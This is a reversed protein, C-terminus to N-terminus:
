FFMKMIDDIKMSNATVAGSQWHSREVRHVNGAKVASVAKWMKGELLKLAEANEPSDWAGNSPFIIIHDADIDPISEEALVQHFDTMEKSWKDPNLGLDSFIFGTYRNNIGFLSLTQDDVNLRVVAVTEEGLTKALKDKADAIKQEYDSLVGESQEKMNLVDAVTQLIAKSDQLISEPLRYTPAVKSFMDYKTKDAWGDLIILDPEYALLAEINGTIDFTPLDLKLYEQTGWLPHYWQVVPTVGLATLYDEMYIAAVRKPHAPVTVEGFEDQLVRTEAEQEAIAPEDAEAPSPSVTAAADSAETNVAPEGQSGCGALAIIVALALLTLATMKVKLTKKGWQMM